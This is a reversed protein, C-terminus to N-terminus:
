ILAGLTWQLKWFAKVYKSKSSILKIQTEILKLQRSNLVFVSSEGIDFKIQELELLTRNNEVMAELLQIQDRYNALEAYHNQVKNNLSIVKQRRKLELQSLKVDLQQLKGRGKRFFLPMEFSVKWKYNQTLLQNFDNNLSETQVRNLLNTGNGLFAYEVDLKPLLQERAWKQEVSQQKRQLDLEILEPNQAVVSSLLQDLSAAQPLAGSGFETEPQYQTALALIVEDDGGFFSGLDWSAKQFAILADSRQQVQSQLQVFTELTDMAPKDGQVFSERIGDLRLNTVDIANEYQQLEHYARWWEWYLKSAELIVYAADRRFVATSRPIELEAQQLDKRGEDIRRGQLLPVKVGLELQGQDPLNLMPNLFIGRTHNYSAKFTAGLFRTPLKIGGEGVAFYDKNDFSKQDWDAFLKPDFAGRSAMMEGEARNQELLASQVLPHYAKIWEALEDFTLVTLNSISDQGKLNLSSLILVILFLYKKM